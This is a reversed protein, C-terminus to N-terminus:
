VNALVENIRKEISDPTTQFFKSLYSITFARNDRVERAHNYISIFLDRPMLIAAAFRNARKEENTKHLNKYYAEEFEKNDYESNGLYDFLYHALEHAVVFRQHYLDDKENVIIVKDYNLEEKTKKGVHITGSLNRELSTEYPKFELNKTIRVIPTFSDGLYDPTALLIREAIAEVEELTYDHKNKKKEILEEIIEDYM